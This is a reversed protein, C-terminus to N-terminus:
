IPSEEQLINRDQLVRTIRSLSHQIKDIQRAENKALQEASKSYRVAAGEVGCLVQAVVYLAEDPCLEHAIRDGFIISTGGMEKTPLVDIQIRYNM